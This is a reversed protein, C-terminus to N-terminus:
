KANTKSNKGLNQEEELDRQFTIKGDPGAVGKLVMTRGGKNNLPPANEDTINTKFTMGKKGPRKKPPTKQIPTKKIPAKPAASKKDLDDLPKTWITVKGKNRIDNLLNQLKDRGKNQNLENQLAKRVFDYPQYPTSDILQVVFYGPPKDGKVPKQSVEGPKLTKTQEFFKAGFAGFSRSFWGTMGGQARTPGHQSRERALKELSAGAKVERIVEEAKSKATAFAEDTKEIAGFFCQRAKLYPDKSKFRKKQKEYYEKTEKESITISPKVKQQVFFQALKERNLYDIFFGHRKKFTEDQKAFTYFLARRYLSQLLQRKGQPSSFQQKQKGKLQNLAADLQERTIAVGQVKALVDSPKDGSALLEVNYESKVAAKAKKEIENFIQDRRKERVWRLVQGKVIEFPSTAAAHKATVKYLAFKGDQTKEPPLIDNLKAGQLKQYLAKPLIGPYIRDMKGGIRKSALHLSRKQAVESFQEPKAQLEKRLEEAEKLTAVEITYATIYPQTKYLAKTQEYHERLQKEDIPPQAKEADGFLLNIVENSLATGAWHQFAQQEQLRLTAAHSALLEVNVVSDFIQRRTLNKWQPQPSIKTKHRYIDEFQALEMHTGGQIALIPKEKKTPVPTSTAKPPTTPTIIPKSVLTKDATKLEKRLRVFEQQILGSLKPYLREDLRKAIENMEENSMPQRGCGALLSISLFLMIFITQHRFTM